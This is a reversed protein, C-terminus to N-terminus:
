SPVVSLLFYIGAFTIGLGGLLMIIDSKVAAGGTIILIQRFNKQQLM